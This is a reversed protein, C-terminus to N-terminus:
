ATPIRGVLRWTDDQRTATMRAGDSAVIARHARRKKSKKKKRAKAKRPEAPLRGGPLQFVAIEDTGENAVLLFGGDPTVAADVPAAGLGEPREVSLTREVKLDKTDIVAVQDSNTVTVYARPAKPDLAIAEPHSLHAGVQIDKVKEGRDLDVVSVTGPAENSVLGTKGDPLIAAGYPYDGTKVYRVAGSATDVIAAADALNLPVLLRKGDPSVALRDPWAIKKTNTPPFNQPTPANSPPPVKIVREFQAVGFRQSYSFVHVVDGDAGPAGAPPAQLKHNSGHVGSVYVLPRKPDMAIGGSAGPLPLTQLVKGTRVSIVRIDHAGRGTSVTWFFRGNPTVRGGTPFNGLPSLKGYPTLHRGNDLLRLDPGIRGDDALQAVAFGAGTLLALALPIALLRPRMDAPM